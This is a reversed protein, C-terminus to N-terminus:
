ELGFKMLIQEPTFLECTSQTVEPNIINTIILTTLKEYNIHNKVQSFTQQIKQLVYLCGKIFLIVM